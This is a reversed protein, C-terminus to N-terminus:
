IAANEANVTKYQAIMHFSVIFIGLLPLFLGAIFPRLIDPLCDGAAFGLFSSLM